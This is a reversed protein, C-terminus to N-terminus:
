RVGRRIPSKYPQSLRALHDVPLAQKINAQTTLGVIAMPRHHLINQQFFTLPSTM